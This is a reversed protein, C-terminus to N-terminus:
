KLFILVAQAIPQEYLQRVNERLEGRNVGPMKDEPVKDKLAQPM